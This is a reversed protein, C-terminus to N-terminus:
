GQGWTDTRHLVVAVIALVAMMPLVLLGLTSLFDSNYVAAEWEPRCSECAGAVGGFAM